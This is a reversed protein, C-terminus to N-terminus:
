YLPLKQFRASHQRDFINKHTWNRFIHSNDDEFFWLYQVKFVFKEIQFNAFEKPKKVELFILLFFIKLQFFPCIPKQGSWPFICKKSNRKMKLKESIWLLCGGPRLSRFDKIKNNKLTVTFIQLTPFKSLPKKLLNSTKQLFHAFSRNAWFILRNRWKSMLFCPILSNSM